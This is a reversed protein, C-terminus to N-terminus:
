KLKHFSHFHHELQSGFSSHSNLSLVYPLSTFTRSLTFLVRVLGVAPPAQNLFSLAGYSPLSPSQQTLHPQM